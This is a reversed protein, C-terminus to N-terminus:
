SLRLVRSRSARAFREWLEPMEQKLAAADLTRRVQGKWTAVGEIGEHDGIAVKLKSELLDQRWKLRAIESRVRLLRDALRLIEEDDGSRPPKLRDCENLTAVQEELLALEEVFRKAELVTERVLDLSAHFFETGAGDRIREVDPHVELAQHAYREVRSAHPTELSFCCELRYPRSTNLSRLRNNLDATHGVKFCQNGTDQLIYVTKDEAM